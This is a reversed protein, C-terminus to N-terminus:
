PQSSASLAAIKAEVVAIQGRIAALEAAKISAPATHQEITAEDVHLRTLIAQDDSLEDAFAPTTILLAAVFFITRTL